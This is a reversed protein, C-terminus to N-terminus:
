DVSRDVWALFFQKLKPRKHVLNVYFKVRKIRISNYFAIRNDRERTYVNIWQITEPTFKPPVPIKEKTAWEIEDWVRELLKETQAKGTNVAEDCLEDAIGQSKLAGLHLANWYDREFLERAQAKTLHKIIIGQKLLSTGYASAAIGYKTGLFRGKGEKGGTWNGPDHINNSYGGEHPLITNNWVPLFDAALVSRGIMLSFVLIALSRLILGTTKPKCEEHRCEIEHDHRWLNQIENKLEGFKEKLKEDFGIKFSRFEKIIFTQFVIVVLSVIIGTFWM